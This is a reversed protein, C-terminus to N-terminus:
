LYDPVSSTDIFIIGNYEGSIIMEKNENGGEKTIITQYMWENGTEEPHNLM